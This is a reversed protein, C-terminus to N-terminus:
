VHSAGPKDSTASARRSVRRSARESLWVRFAGSVDLLIHLALALITFFTLTAFFKLTYYAVPKTTPGIPKHNSLGAFAADAGEHCTTCMEVRNEKPDALEHGGHCDACGPSRQSGLHLQRAHVSEAYSEVPHRAEPDLEAAVGEAEGEAAEQTEHCAICRENMRTRNENATLTAAEPISHAEGHCQLCYPADEPGAEGHVMPAAEEQVETHCGVCAALAVPASKTLAAIEPPVDTPEPVPEHPNFHYDEHCDRCTLDVHVTKAMQAASYVPQEHCARCWKPNDSDETNALATSGAVSLLVAIAISLRPYPM